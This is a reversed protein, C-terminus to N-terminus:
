NKEYEIVLLPVENTFIISEKECAYTEFDGMEENYRIRVILQNDGM